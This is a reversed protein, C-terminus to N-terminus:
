NYNADLIIHYRVKSDAIRETISLIRAVIWERSKLLESIDETANLFYHPFAVPYARKIISAQFLLYFTVMLLLGHNRLQTGQPCSFLWIVVGLTGSRSRARPGSALM